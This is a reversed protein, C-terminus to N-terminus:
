ATVEDRLTHWRKIDSAFPVHVVPGTKTWRRAFAHAFHGVMLDQVVRVISEGENDDAVELVLSDHIQLLVIGPYAHEVDVMVDKMVEAVSGQIVQNFAKHAPEYASFWRERGNVLRVFGKDEAAHAAADSARAFQPFTQRYLSVWESVQKVPYTRGTFKAIQERITMVGAGYLMGLGCRKGVQRYETWDDGTPDIDPFMRKTTIDHADDGALFGDLMPTCGSMATAVRMECQSADVEWLAHGPKPVLFRRPTRLGEPAWDKFQYDQPIAQLQVREVSLRGSVVKAQRHNTRLRGDAGVMAPWADYWKSLASKAAEHLAYDQSWPVQQKVLRQVVEDDMQPRPAVHAGGKTMKDNFPLVGLGGEDKPGFFFKSAKTPTPDFPLRQAVGEKFSELTFADQEMEEADFGIGRNEMRYLCVTLDHERAIHQWWLTAEPLGGHEIDAGDPGDFYTEHQYEYLALTLVADQAAYPAIVDWPVLDFRPDANKGTLPGLWPKLAQQEADEDGETLGLRVSTPKLGTPYQPMLVHNGLMTDWCFADALDYGTTSEHNRLGARIQQLDFKANQFVLRQKNLWNMLTHWQAPYLNPAYSEAGGDPWRDLRRTTKDDLSKPGLPLDALGQDFPIAYSRIPQGWADRFAFSVVAVRSGSDVYLGNTETDLAVTLDTRDWFPDHQDPLSRTTTM